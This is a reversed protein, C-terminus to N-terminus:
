LCQVTLLAGMSQLDGLWGEVQSRKLGEATAIDEFAHEGDFYKLLRSFNEKLEADTISDQLAATQASEEDGAPNGADVIILAADDRGDIREASDHIITDESVVSGNEDQEHGLGLTLLGTGTAPSVKSSKRSQLPEADMRLWGVTRLRAVLGMRSMWALVDMYAERRGRSPFYTWFQTPEAGLMRILKDLGPMAPFRKGYESALQPLKDLPADPAIVYTNRPHLSPIPRAKRWKMLHRSLFLATDTPLGLKTAVKSLPKTPVLHTIFYSLAAAERHSGLTRLLHQKDDLLLLASDLSLTHTSSSLDSTPIQLAMEIGRLRIGAISDTSIASFVEKLAWALESMELVSKWVASTATNDSRAKSMLAIIKRSETEVYSHREQLHRLAMTLVRAVHEHLASPSLDTGEGSEVPMSEMAFVVHFMNMGDAGQGSGKTSISNFSTALSTGGVESGFSEPLHAFDRLNVQSHPKRDEVHRGNRKSQVEHPTESTASTWSGNEYAFCPQGVFTMGDVAIELKLGDSWRGPALLKELTEIRHQLVTDLASARGNINLGSETVKRNGRHTPIIDVFDDDDCDEDDDSKSAAGASKDRAVHKTHRASDPPYHFVLKVGAKSRILLLVATLNNRLLLQSDM